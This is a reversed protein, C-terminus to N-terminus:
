EDIINILITEKIIQYKKQYAVPSGGMHIATATGWAILSAKDDALSSLPIGVVDQNSIPLIPQFKPM